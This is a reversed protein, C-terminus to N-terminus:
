WFEERAARRTTTSKMSSGEEPLITPAGRTARM